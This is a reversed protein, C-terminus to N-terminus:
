YRGFDELEEKDAKTKWPEGLKLLAMIKKGEAEAEARNKFFGVRLRMYDKGKVKVVTIYVPYGEKVLRVAAPIIERKNPTSLVNLVWEHNARTKLNQKVQDPTVIKLRMGEPLNRDAFDGGVEIKGLQDMNLRCLIPWKLSDGYVDRREAIVSLSEGKKVVYYGTEEKPSIEKTSTGIERRKSVKAQVTATKAEETRGQEAEVGKLGEHPPPTEVKKQPPRKIPMVVKTNEVPPLPEEERSCGAHLLLLTLCICILPAPVQMFGKQIGWYSAQADALIIM